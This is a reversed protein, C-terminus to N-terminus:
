CANRRYADALNPHPAIAPSVFVDDLRRDIVERETLAALLRKKMEPYSGVADPMMNTLRGIRGTVGRGAACSTRTASPLLRAGQKALSGTSKSSSLLSTRSLCVIAFRM